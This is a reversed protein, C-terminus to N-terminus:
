IESGSRPMMSDIKQAIGPKALEARLKDYGDGPSIWPLQPYSHIYAAERAVGDFWIPAKVAKGLFGDEERTTQNGLSKQRHL